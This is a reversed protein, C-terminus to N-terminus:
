GYTVDGYLIKQRHGTTQEIYAADKLATAWARRLCPHHQYVWSQCVDREQGQRHHRGTAQEWTESSGFCSVVLQEGYNGQLNHGKKHAHVSLAVAGRLDRPLESGAGYYPVGAAALANGFEIHSVWVIGEPHEDMWQLADRVLFDDLWVAVRNPKFTEKVALWYHFAIDAEAGAKICAETVQGETDFRGRSYTITQRVYANWVRRAELWARPPAPDWKYYFGCAIERMKAALQTKDALDEGSPLCWERDLTDLSLAVSPPVKIERVHFRMAADVDSSTVMIVGPTQELRHRYRARASEQNDRFEDVAWEARLPDPEIYDAPAELKLLAGPALADQPLVHPDIARHWEDAQHWSMPVPAGGRRCWILMHWYDLLEKKAMTGSLAIVVPESGLVYRNMRRVRGARRHRWEQAEDLIIVDPEHQELFEANKKLGLENSGMVLPLAIDWSEALEAFERRTKARLDAPVFVVPRKAGLVAPALASILTKGEGVPLQAFAGRYAVAEAITAAQTPRLRMDGTGWRDEIYGAIQELDETQWDRRPLDRVREFDNTIAVGRSPAKGKGFQAATLVDSLSM